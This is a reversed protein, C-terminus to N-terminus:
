VNDSPHVPIWNCLKLCNRCVLGIPTALRTKEYNGTRLNGICSQYTDGLFGIHYKNCNEGHVFQYGDKPIVLIGNLIREM